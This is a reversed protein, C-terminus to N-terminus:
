KFFDEPQIEFIEALKILFDVTLRNKGSEIRAYFSQSINLKNAVFEQSFGSNFRELRIRKLKRDNGKKGKLKKFRLHWLPLYVM